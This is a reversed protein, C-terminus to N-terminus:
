KSAPQECHPAGPNYNTSAKLGKWVSVSKNTWERVM